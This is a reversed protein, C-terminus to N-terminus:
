ASAKSAPTGNSGKMPELWYAYVKTGAYKAACLKYGKARLLKKVHTHGRNWDRRLPHEGDGIEGGLALARLQRTTFCYKLPNELLVPLLREAVAPRTVRKHFNKGSPVKGKWLVRDLGAPAEAPIGLAPRQIGRRAPEQENDSSKSWDLGVASIYQPGVYRQKGLRMREPHGHACSYVDVEINRFKITDVYKSAGFRGCDICPTSAFREIGKYDRLRPLRVLISKCAPCKGWDQPRDPDSPVRGFWKVPTPPNTCNCSLRFAIKEGRAAQVEALKQLRELELQEARFHARRVRGPRLAELAWIKGMMDAYRHRLGKIALRECPRTAHAPSKPSARNLGDIWGIELEWLIETESISRRRGNSAFAALATLVRWDQRKHHENVIAMAAKLLGKNGPRHELRRFANPRSRDEVVVDYLLFRVKRKGSAVLYGDELRENFTNQTGDRLQQLYREDARVAQVAHDRSAIYPWFVYDYHEDTYGVGYYVWSDCTGWKRVRAVFDAEDRFLRGIAPAIVCQITRNHIAKDLDALARRTDKEGSDIDIAIGAIRIGARAAKGLQHRLNASLAHGEKAQPDSSVRVYIVAYLFLNGGATRESFFYLFETRSVQKLQKLELADAIRDGTRDVLWTVRGVFERSEPSAVIRRALKHYKVAM